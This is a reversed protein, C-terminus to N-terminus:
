AGEIISKARKAAGGLVDRQALIKTENAKIWNSAREVFLGDLAEAFGAEQQCRFDAAAMAQEAAKPEDGEYRYKGFRSAALKEASIGGVRYGVTRMCASYGSKKGSVIRLAASQMDLAERNLENVFNEITLAQEVSGYLARDADAWCGSDSRGSKVGDPLTIEVTKEDDGWVVKRYREQRDESLSREWVDARSGADKVTSAYGLRRAQQESALLEGVGILAASSRTSGQFSAPVDFGAERACARVLLGHATALEAPPSALATMAMVTGTPAPEPREQATCGALSAVIVGGLAGAAAASKAALFTSV